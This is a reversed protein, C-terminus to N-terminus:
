LLYYIINKQLNTLTNLDQNIELQYASRETRYQYTGYKNNKLLALITEIIEGKNQYQKKQETRWIIIKQLNKRSAKVYQAERDWLSNFVSKSIGSINLVQQFLEQYKEYNLGFEMYAIIQALMHEKLLCEENSNEYELLDQKLEAIISEEISINDVSYLQIKKCNEIIERIKM